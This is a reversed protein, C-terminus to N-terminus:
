DEQAHKAFSGRKVLKGQGAEKLGKQVSEMAEPNNWLWAERAPVEVQPELVIRGEDDKYAKFSSVGAALRGLTVRGKSDPRVTRLIPEM